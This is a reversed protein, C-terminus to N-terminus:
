PKVGIAQWNFTEGAGDIANDRNITFGTSIAPGLLGLSSSVNNQNVTRTIVVNPESGTAFPHPFTFNEDGDITSIDSGWQIRTNGIDLYSSASQDDIPTTNGIVTTQIKRVGIVTMQMRGDGPADQSSMQPRFGTSANNVPDIVIVVGNNNSDIVLASGVNTWLLEMNQPTFSLSYPRVSSAGLQSQNGTFILYEYNAKIDAWTEGTSFPYLVNDVIETDILKVHTDESTGQTGQAFPKGVYEVAIDSTRRFFHYDFDDAPIIFSVGSEFSQSATSLPNRKIYYFSRSPDLDNAFDGFNNDQFSFSAVEDQGADDELTFFQTGHGMRNLYGSSNNSLGYDGTAAGAHFQWADSKGNDDEIRIIEGDAFTENDVEDLSDFTQTVTSGSSSSSDIAKKLVAASILRPETNTGALALAETLTFPNPIARALDWSSGTGNWVYIGALSGGDDATLISWDGDVAGTPLGSLITSSGLFVGTIDQSANSTFSSGGNISITM